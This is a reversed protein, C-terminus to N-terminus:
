NQTQPSVEVKWALSSQQRINFIRFQSYGSDRRQYGSATSLVWPEEEATGLVTSLFKRLSSLIWFKESSVNFLYSLRLLNM